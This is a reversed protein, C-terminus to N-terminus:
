RNILVKKATNGQRKIYIGRDPNSVRVGQLNYYEIPANVDTGIADVSLVTDDSTLETWKYLLTATADWMAEKKWVTFENMSFVGNELKLILNEGEQGDTSYADINGNGILITPKGLAVATNAFPISWQNEGLTGMNYDDEVLGELNNYGAFDTLYGEKSITIIFSGLEPEGDGVASRTSSSGYVYKIGYITHTGVMPNVTEEEEVELRNISTYVYLCNLYDESWISFSTFRFTGDENPYLTLETDDDDDWATGRGSLVYQKGDAGTVKTSPTCYLVWNGGVVDGQLKSGTYGAISTLENNGNITMTFEIDYEEPGFNDPEVQRDATGTYTHAFDSNGEPETYESVSTIRIDRYLAQLTSVTNTSESSSDYKEELKWVTLNTINFNEGNRTLTFGGNADYTDTSTSGLAMSYTTAVGDVYVGAEQLMGKTLTYANETTEFKNYGNSIAELTGEYGLLESLENNNNIVLTFDVQSQAQNNTYDVKTAALTYIGSFDYSPPTVEPAESSWIALLKWESSTEGGGITDDDGQDEGVSGSTNIVKQWVAITSPSFIYNGNDYTVTINPNLNITQGEIQGSSNTVGGELETSDSIVIGGGTTENFEVYAPAADSLSWVDGKVTGGMYGYELAKETTQYGAIATLQNQDNISVTMKAPTTVGDVTKYWNYTVSVNSFDHNPTVDGGGGGGQPTAKGNSYTALVNGVFDVVTFTPLTIEGKSNVTWEFEYDSGYVSGDANGLVVMYEVGPVGFYAFSQGYNPTIAGTEANYTVKVSEDFFLFDTIQTKSNFGGSMSINFDFSTPLVAKTEEKLNAAYEVNGNFTYAGLISAPPTGTDGSDGGGEEGKPKVTINSYTAVKSTPYPYGTYEAKGVTFEPITISGDANVTWEFEYCEGYGVTFGPDSMFLAFMAEDHSIYAFNRPTLKGADFNLTINVGNWLFNKLAVRDDYYQNEELTFDFTAPLLAKVDASIDGAYSVDAKFTYEGPLAASAKGTFALFLAVVATLKLLTIKKM